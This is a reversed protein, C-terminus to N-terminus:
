AAVERTQLHSLGRTSISGVRYAPRATADRAVLCDAPPLPSDAAPKRALARPKPALKKPWPIPALHRRALTEAVDHSISWAAFTSSDNPDYDIIHRAFEVDSQPYLM